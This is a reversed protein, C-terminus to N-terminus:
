WGGFPAEDELRDETSKYENNEIKQVRESSTNLTQISNLAERQVEAIVRRNTEECQKWAAKFSPESFEEGSLPFGLKKIWEDPPTLGDPQSPVKAAEYAILIDRIHQDARGCYTGDFYIEKAALLGKKDIKM